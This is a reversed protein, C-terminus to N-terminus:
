SFGRGANANNSIGILGHHMEMAKNLQETAHDAGISVFPTQNKTVSICGEELAKWTEPHDQKLVLMDVIYRPWLRKYKIRDMTFFLREFQQGADIHLNLDANRCAAVFYLVSEVHHLYNMMSKFM